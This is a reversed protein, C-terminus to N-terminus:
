KNKLILSKCKVHCQNGHLSFRSCCREELMLTRAGSLFESGMRRSADKIWSGLLDWCRCKVLCIIWKIFSFYKIVGRPWNLFRRKEQFRGDGRLSQCKVLCIIGMLALRRRDLRRALGVESMQTSLHNGHSALRRGDIRGALEIGPMQRCVYTGDLILSIEDLKRAFGLEPVLRKQLGFEPVRCSSHDGHAFLGRQSLRQPM